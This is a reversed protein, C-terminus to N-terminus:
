NWCKDLCMVVSYCCIFNMRVASILEIDFIIIISIRLQKFIHQQCSLKIHNMEMM